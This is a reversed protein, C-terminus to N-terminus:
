IYIYIYTVLTKKNIVQSQKRQILELAENVLNTDKPSADTFVYIHSNPKAARLAEIVATIGMEPCDGGGHVQIKNLEHMIEEPKFTELVPGVDTEVYRLCKKIIYVKIVM